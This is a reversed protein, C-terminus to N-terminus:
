FWAATNAGAASGRSLFRLKKRRREGQHCRSEIGFNELPRTKIERPRPESETGRLFQVNNLALFDLAQNRLRAPVVERQTDVIELGPLLVELGQVHDKAARDLSRISCGRKRNAIAITSGAM